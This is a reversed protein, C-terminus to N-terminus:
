HMDGSDEGSSFATSIVEEKKDFWRLILMIFWPFLELIGVAVCADAVPYLETQLYEYIKDRCTPPRTLLRTKNCEPQLQYEFINRWGCCGNKNIFDTRGAFGEKSDEVWRGGVGTQLDPTYGKMNAGVVIQILISALMLVIYMVLVPRCTHVPNKFKSPPWPRYGPDPPCSPCYDQQRNHCKEWSIFVGLSLFVLSCILTFTLAQFAEDLYYTQFIPNGIFGSEKFKQRAASINAIPILVLIVAIISTLILLKTLCIRTKRKTTAGMGDCPCVGM